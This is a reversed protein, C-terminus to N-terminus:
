HHHKTLAVAPCPFATLTIGINNTSNLPAARQVQCIQHTQAASGPNTYSCPPNTSSICTDCGYPYVGVNGHSYVSSQSLPISEAAKVPSFTQSGLGTTADGTFPAPGPGPNNAIEPVPIFQGESFQGWSPYRTFGGPSYSTHTYYFSTAFIQNYEPLSGDVPSPLPLTMTYLANVGNVESIDVTDSVGAIYTPDINVTFEAFTAGPGGGGNTYCEGDNLNPPSSGNTYVNGSFTLNGPQPVFKVSDGALLFFFGTTSSSNYSQLLGEGNFRHNHPGSPSTALQNLNTVEESSPYGPNTASVPTLTLFFYQTAATSNTVSVTAPSQPLGQAGVVVAGKPGSGGGGIIAVFNTGNGVSKSVPRGNIRIDSVSFSANKEQEDTSIVIRDVANLHGVHLQDASLSVTQYGSQDANGQMGQSAAASTYLSQSTGARLAHVTVQTTGPGNLRFSVSNLGIFSRAPVIEIGAYSGHEVKPENVRISFPTGPATALDASFSDRKSPHAAIFPTAILEPTAGFVIPQSLVGAIM